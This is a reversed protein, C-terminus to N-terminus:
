INILKNYLKNPQLMFKSGGKKWDIKIKNFDLKSIDAM